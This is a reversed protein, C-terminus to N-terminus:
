ENAKGGTHLQNLSMRNLFVEGTHKELEREKGRFNQDMDAVYKSATTFGATNPRAANRVM